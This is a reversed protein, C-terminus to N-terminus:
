AVQAWNASAVSLKRRSFTGRFQASMQSETVSLKRIMLGLSKRTTVHVPYLYTVIDAGCVWRNTIFQQQPCMTVQHTSRREGSVGDRGPLGSAGETLWSIGSAKQWSKKQRHPATARRADPRCEVRCRPIARAAKCAQRHRGTEWQSRAARSRRARRGNRAPE